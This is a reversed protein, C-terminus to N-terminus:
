VNDEAYGPPTYIMAKRDNGVTESAYEVTEIKGRAIHERHRDYGAPAKERM